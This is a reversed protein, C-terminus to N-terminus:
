SLFYLIILAILLVIFALLRITLNAGAYPTGSIPDINETRYKRRNYIMLKFSFALLGFLILIAGILVLPDMVSFM